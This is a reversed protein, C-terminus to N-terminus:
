EHQLNLSNIFHHEQQWYVYMRAGTAVARVYESRNGTCTCVREQQWYVYMSAGTALVRVYESRNGTCTCVREQQWYVYMSAGSALVRLYEYMRLCSHTASTVSNKIM